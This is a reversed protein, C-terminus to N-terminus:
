HYAAALASGRYVGPGRRADGQISLAGLVLEAAKVRLGLGLTHAPVTRYHGRRRNCLLTSLRHVRPTNGTLVGKVQGVDRQAVFPSTPVACGRLLRWGPTLSYGASVAPFLGALRVSRHDHYPRALVWSEMNDNLM